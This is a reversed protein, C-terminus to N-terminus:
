WCPAVKLGPEALSLWQNCSTSTSVTWLHIAGTHTSPSNSCDLLVGITLKPFRHFESYKSSNGIKHADSWDGCAMITNWIKTTMQFHLMTFLHTTFLVRAMISDFVPLNYRVRIVLVVIKWQKSELSRRLKANFNYVNHSILTLRM